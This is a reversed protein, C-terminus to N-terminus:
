LRFNRTLSTKPQIRALMTVTHIVNIMHQIIPEAQVLRIGHLVHQAHRLNVYTVVMDLKVTAIIPETKWQVSGLICNKM